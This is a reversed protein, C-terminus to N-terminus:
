DLVGFDDVTGTVRPPIAIDGKSVTFNSGKRGTTVNVGSADSFYDISVAFHHTRPKDVNLTV